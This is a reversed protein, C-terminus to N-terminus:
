GAVIDWFTRALKVVTDRYYIGGVVLALVMTLVLARLETENAAEEGPAWYITVLLLYLAGQVFWMWVPVEAFLSWKFFPLGSQFFSGLSQDPVEALEVPQTDAPPAAKKPPEVAALAKRAALEAKRALAAARKTAEDLERTAIPATKRNALVNKFLKEASEVLAGAEAKLKAVVAAAAAEDAPRSAAAKMTLAKAKEIIEQTDVAYKEAQGTARSLRAQNRIGVFLSSVGVFFVVTIVCFFVIVEVMSLVTNRIGMRALVSM